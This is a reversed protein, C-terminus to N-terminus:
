GLCQGASVRVGARLGIQHDRIVRM